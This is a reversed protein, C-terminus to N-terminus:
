LQQWIAALLLLVSAATAYTWLVFFFRMYRFARALAGDSGAFHASVSRAFAWLLASAILGAVASSANYFFTTALRPSSAAISNPNHVGVDLLLLALLGAGVSGVGAALRAGAGAVRLRQRSRGGLEPSGSTVLADM